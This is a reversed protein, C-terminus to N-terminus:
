TARCESRMASSDSESESRWFRSFVRGSPCASRFSCPNSESESEFELRAGDSELPDSSSWVPDVVSDSELDSLFFRFFRLASLFTRATASM